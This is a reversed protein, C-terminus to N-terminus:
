DTIKYRISSVYRVKGSLGHCSCRVPGRVQQDVVVAIVHADHHDFIELGTGVQEHDNGLIVALHTCNVVLVHGYPVFDSELVEGDTVRDDLIALIYAADNGGNAFAIVNVGVVQLGLAPSTM